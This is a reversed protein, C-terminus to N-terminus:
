PSPSSPPYHNFPPYRKKDFEEIQQILEKVIRKPKWNFKRRHDLGDERLRKEIKGLAQLIEDTIIETEKPYWPPAISSKNAPMYGGM